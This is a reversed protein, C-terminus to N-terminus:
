RDEIKLSHLVQDCGPKVLELDESAVQCIFVSKPFQENFGVYARVHPVREGLIEIAFREQVGTIVQRSIPNTYTYDKYVSPTIQGIPVEDKTVQAFLKAYDETSTVPAVTFYQVMALGDGPTEVIITRFGSADFEDSEVKWNGPYQFSIGDKNYSRPNATDASSECALLTCACLLFLSLHAFHNLRKM